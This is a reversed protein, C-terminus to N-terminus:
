ACRPSELSGQPLPRRQDNGTRRKELGQGQQTLARGNPPRAIFLATQIAATAAAIRETSSTAPDQNGGGSSAVLYVLVGAGVIFAVAAAGIVPVGWRRPGPLGPWRRPRPTADHDVGAGFREEPDVQLGRTTTLADSTADGLSGVVTPETVDGPDNSAAPAESTATDAVVLIQGADEVSPETLTTSGTTSAASRPTSPALGTSKKIARDIWAGLTLGAAQAANRALDRADDDVGKVSWPSIPKMDIPTHGFQRTAM